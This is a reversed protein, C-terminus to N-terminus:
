SSLRRGAAAVRRRAARGDVDRRERGAGCGARTAPMGDRAKGASRAGRGEELFPEESAAGSVGDTEQDTIAKQDRCACITDPVIVQVAVVPLTLRVPSLNPDVAFCHGDKPSLPVAVGPQDGRHGRLKLFFMTARSFFSTQRRSTRSTLSARSLPKRSLRSLIRSSASCSRLRTTSSCRRVLCVAECRLGGQSRAVAKSEAWQRQSPQRIM